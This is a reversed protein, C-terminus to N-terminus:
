QPWGHKLSVESLLCEATLVSLLLLLLLLSFWGWGVEALLMVETSSFLEITSLIYKRNLCCNHDPYQLVNLDFINWYNQLLFTFVPTLSLTTSTYFLSGSNCFDHDCSLLCGKMREGKFRSLFRSLNFVILDIIAYKFNGCLSEVDRSGCGRIIVTERFLILNWTEASLIGLYQSQRGWPPM